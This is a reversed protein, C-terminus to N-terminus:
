IEMPERSLDLLPYREPTVFNMGADIFLITARPHDSPPPMGFAYRVARGDTVLHRIRGDELRRHDTWAGLLERCKKDRIHGVVQTLGIPLLRPDFRRRPPGVFLEARAALPHTPRQYFIGRGEGYTSGPRHLAGLDLPPMGSELAGEDFSAAWAEVATDLARNLAAAVVRADNQDVPSVGIGTLDDTAVAGHLCLVTDLPAAAVRFRGSRLLRVVLTRQATTFTALDRALAEPDPLAPYRRRFAAVLAPDASEYARDADRQAELFTAEDFPALECVRALDHNGLILTIRSPDHVALWSLLQLASETAYARESRKGWDFHDGMSILHADPAIRGDEGLLEARDLVRLVTEFPAQPDGIAVTRRAPRSEAGVGAASLNVTDIRAQDNRALDLARGVRDSHPGPEKRATKSAESM